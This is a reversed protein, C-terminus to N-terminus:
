LVVVFRGCFAVSGGGGGCCCCCFFTFFRVGYRGPAYRFRAIPNPWPWSPRQIYHLQMARSCQQSQLWPAYRPALVGIIIQVTRISSLSIDRAILEALEQSITFLFHQITPQHFKREEIRRSQLRPGSHPPRKPLALGIYGHVHVSPRVSPRVSSCAGELAAQSAFGHDLSLFVLLM